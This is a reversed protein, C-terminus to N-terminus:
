DPLLMSTSTSKKGAAFAAPDFHLVYGNKSYVPFSPEWRIGADITLRSTVKWADQIYLGMYNLRYYGLSETGQTLASPRGVM